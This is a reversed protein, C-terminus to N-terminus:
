PAVRCARVCFRLRFVGCRFVGCRAIRWPQNMVDNVMLSFVVGLERRIEGYLVKKFCKPIFVIDYKCEWTTHELTEDTEM